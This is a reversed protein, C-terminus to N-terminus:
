VGLYVRDSGFNSKYYAIIRYSSNSPLLDYATRPHITISQTKGYYLTQNDSTWLFGNPNNIYGVPIIRFYVKTHPSVTSVYTINVSLNSIEGAYSTAEVKVGHIEFSDTRTFSNNTMIGVSLVSVVTIFVAVIKWYRKILGKWNTFRICTPKSVHGNNIHLLPVVLLTLIPWFMLYQVFLRYNFFLIFIPLLFLTYRMREYFIFYLCALVIFSSIALFNFFLNSVSSFGMFSIQSLGYGIGILSGEAPSIVNSVFVHPSSVIFFGNIIFFAITVFLLLILAPKLGHEKAEYIIMLPLMLAPFQKFSLAIGLFAGSRKPSGMTMFSLMMFIVWFIDNDGYYAMFWYQFNLVMIAMILPNFRELKQKKYHYLLLLPPVSYFPLIVETPNLRLIAAPILYIFSMAPYTLSQVIGGSLTPTILNDRLGYYSFAGSLAGLKYPDKGSLITHAAYITLANEDTQFFGIRIGWYFELILITVTLGVAILTLKKHNDRSEFLNIKRPVLLSACLITAWLLLTVLPHEAYKSIPFFLVSLASLVSFFLISKVVLSMEDTPRLLFYLPISVAAITVASELFIGFYSTYGLAPWIFNPLTILLISALISYLTNSENSNRSRTVGVKYNNM